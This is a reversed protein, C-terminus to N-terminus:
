YSYLSLFNMKIFNFMSFLPKAVEGKHKLLKLDPTNACSYIFTQTEVPELGPRYGVIRFWTERNEETGYLYTLIHLL